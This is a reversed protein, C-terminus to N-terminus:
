FNFTALNDVVNAMREMPSVPNFLNLKPMLWLPPYFTINPVAPYFKFNVL